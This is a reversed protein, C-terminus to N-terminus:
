FPLDSDDEPEPVVAKGDSVFEYTKKAEKKIKVTCPMKAKGYEDEGVAKKLSENAAWTLELEGEGDPTTVQYKFIEDYLKFDYDVVEWDDAQYMGTVYPHIAFNGPVEPGKTKDLVKGAQGKVGDQFKTKFNKFGGSQFTASLNVLDAIKLYNKSM